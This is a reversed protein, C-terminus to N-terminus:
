VHMGELSILRAVEQRQVKGTATLPLAELFRWRRPVKYGALRMRCYINMEDETSGASAKLVIAAAVLQGWEPNPLGVVCAAAVAPHGLLVAEVEAPYVNEGGSVILDTRRQVVTLYGTDDLYGLDGTRLWVGDLAAGSAEADALYGPMVTPGQVQIEGIEGPAAIEGSEDVIRIENFVLARGVTGPCVVWDEPLATAVQSAAETLGYTIAVRLGADAARALLGADTAAGGLLILRLQQLASVTKGDDLLRSLMTPVLSILTARQELILDGIELADFGDQLLVTFGFLCARWLIAMGGVHYLPLCALWRDEPLTGLKTASAYASAFQNSFTLMAGKARGTTGSTFVVTQVKDARFADAESCDIADSNAWRDETVDVAQLAPLQKAVAIAATATTELHLLTRSETKRLQFELEEATLRLNLPVCVAGLRALAFIACVMEPSNPMLVAVSEGSRIGVSKLYGALRTVAGDLARWSWGRRAFLLGTQDPTAAARAKLWDQTDIM